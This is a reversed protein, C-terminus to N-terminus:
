NLPPALPFVNLLLSRYNVLLSYGGGGKIQQHFWNIHLMKVSAILNSQNNKAM